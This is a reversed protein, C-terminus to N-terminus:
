MSLVRRLIRASGLLTTKQIVEIRINDDCEKIYGEFKKTIMGLAGIVVPVVKVWLRAMEDKLPQHKEIKEVEKEQVRKDGPIGIDIITAEKTRKNLLVIDPKRAQIHQDCQIMMDWLLMYEENEAFSSPQQNYWENAREINAKESMAWHVYRGVNDHRRKYERQALKSCESVIHNVSDGKEHCMRCLPSEVSKEIHYKLYNTRLSQEQASCILAETTCKLDCKSLWGWTKDWDVAENENFYQGHFKKEKWERMTIEKGEKRFVKPDKCEETNLHGHIRVM